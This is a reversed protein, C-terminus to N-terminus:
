QYSSGRPTPLRPWRAARTFSPSATHSARSALASLTECCLTSWRVGPLHPTWPALSFLFADSPADMFFFSGKNALFAPDKHLCRRKSVSLQNTFFSHHPYIALFLMTSAILTRWGVSLTLAGTDAHTDLWLSGRSLLTLICHIREM